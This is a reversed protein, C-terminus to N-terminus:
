GVKMGCGEARPAQLLHLVRSGAGLTSPLSPSPFQEAPLTASVEQGMGQSAPAREKPALSSFPFEEGPLREQGRPSGPVNLSIQLLVRWINLMGEQRSPLCSGHGADRGPAKGAGWAREGRGEGGGLSKREGEIIKIKNKKKRPAM